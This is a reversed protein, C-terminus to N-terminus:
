TTTAVPQHSNASTNTAIVTTAPLLKELEDFVAEKTAINETV